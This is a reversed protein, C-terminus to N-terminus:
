SEESKTVFSDGPELNGVWTGQKDVIALRGKKNRAAYGMFTYTDAGVESPLRAMLATDQKEIAIQALLLAMKPDKPRIVMLPLGDKTDITWKSM